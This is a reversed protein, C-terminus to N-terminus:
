EVLDTVADVCEIMEDGKDVEGQVNETMEGKEVEGKANETMEEGNEAEGKGNEM